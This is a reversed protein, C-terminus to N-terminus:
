MALPLDLCQVLPHPATKNQKGQWSKKRRHNRRKKVLIPLSPYPPPTPALGEGLDAVSQVTRFTSSSVDCFKKKNAERQEKLNAFCTFQAM